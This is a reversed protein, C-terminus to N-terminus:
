RQAYAEARVTTIDAGTQDLIIQFVFMMALTSTLRAAICRLSPLAAQDLTFLALLLALVLVRRHTNGVAPQCSRKRQEEAGVNNQPSDEHQPGAHGRAQHPDHPNTGSRSGYM